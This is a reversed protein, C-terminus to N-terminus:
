ASRGEEVDMVDFFTQLDARDGLGASAKQEQLGASAADNWGRKAMFTNWVEVQEADPRRGNTFAWELIEEDTGGALVRERLADWEVGLFRCLRDDFTRKGPIFGVHYGDPLQGAADLRIKDIIRALLFVGGTAHRPSRIPFSM